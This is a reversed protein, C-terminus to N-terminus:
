PPTRSFCAKKQKVHKKTVYVKGYNKRFFKKKAGYTKNVHKQLVCKEMIKKLWNKKAEMYKTSMFKKKAAADHKQGFTEIHAGELATRPPPDATFIGEKRNIKPCPKTFIGPM